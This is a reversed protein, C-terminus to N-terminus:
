SELSPRLITRPRAVEPGVIPPSDATQAVFLRRTGSSAYRRAGFSFHFESEGEAEAARAPRPKHDKDGPLSVFANSSRRKIKNLGM